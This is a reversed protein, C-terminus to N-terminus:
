RFFEEDVLGLISVQDSLRDGDFVAFSPDEMLKRICTTTRSKAQRFNVSAEGEGEVTGGVKRVLDAKPIEPNDILLLLLKAGANNLKAWNQKGALCVEAKRRENLKILFLEPNQKAREEFEWRAMEETMNIRAVGRGVVRWNGARFPDNPSISAVGELPQYPRGSMYTAFELMNFAASQREIRDTRDTASREADFRMHKFLSLAKQYVKESQDVARKRKEKDTLSQVLRHLVALRYILPIPGVKESRSSYEFLQDIEELDEIENSGSRMKLHALRYAAYEPLPSPVKNDKAIKYARQALDIAESTGGYKLKESICLKLLNDVERRFTEISPSSM